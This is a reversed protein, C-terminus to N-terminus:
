ETAAQSVAGMPQAPTSKGAAVMDERHRVFQIAEKLQHPAIAFLVTPYIICGAVVGVVLKALAIDLPVLWLTAGVGVAMAVAAVLPAVIAALLATLRLDLTRASLAVTACLQVATGVVWAWAFGEIGWMSGILFTAPMIISGLISISLAVKPAGRADTAPAFLIQLTLMAMAIALIPLFAVIEGWKDSLLVLVLPEAVVAMGAYAPLAVMMVLRITALLPGVGEQQQRSYAAYAVENVPPVFKTALLSTLFLGTTYVGLSHPDLVRGAIIIDSQSRIFWFFQTATLIGGFTAIRSAGHFRFSPRWPAKSVIMMGIAETYFIAFPALVLTWVGLGASACVLATIAGALAALLRVLAPSRFNIERSLMAHPLAIFPTALYLLAQVRLLDVVLPQEFYAAVLPATMFQLLALGSNLLILMGLAQRLREESVEEERILASALSFGNMTNFLVLMVQTMAFLGYDGPALLRLVILTSSWAVIQTLVQSGSRWLVASRFRSIMSSKSERTM